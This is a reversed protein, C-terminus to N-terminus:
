AALDPCKIHKASLKTASINAGMDKLLQVTTM